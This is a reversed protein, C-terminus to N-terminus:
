SEFCQLISVAYRGRRLRLPIRFSRTTEPPLPPLSVWVMATEYRVPASYARDSFPHARLARSRV